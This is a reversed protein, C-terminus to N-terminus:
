EDQSYIVVTYPGITVKGSCPLGDYPIQSADVDPSHHTDFNPDYKYSDSNFRMKWTGERPFGIIYDDDEHLQNKLNVVVVVSDTPGAEQWRHFAILKASEDYHFLHINQGCLGRSIESLNRRLFILDNYMKLIGLEDEIRSWDIPDTVQFWRDELFEQGQFLMPIGPSTLVLAGGLTSRKKSFWSDVNGKWIEEPIRFKGNAVEDHSETFIIRRFADNNYKYKIAECVAGLNRTADDIQIIAERVPNVFCSDWQANFGAGGIGEDKTVWPNNKMDEAISIKGPFFKQIDENIWQMLSWGEPIDDSPDGEKGDINGIYPVSDWRLGDVHYEELWMLANDHIYQRVENRGYDPRTDGWPTRSRKDNFFYIGGKNNESWGDFQWLSLDQPGFHNYVVDIIVALGLEHATKIFLKFADPGGYISEVAFPNAPNYGWSFDGSFEMVPMVEIVNVGLQQLYKLKDMASDFTGPKGKELVNFTGVHMEYIVLENWNGIQFHDDDWDFAQPDYIISNGSSHTVKRAYPDMRPLLDQDTQVLFRYEDGIKARLSKASWIGDGEHIMATKKWQNYTGTVFVKKAFPAWVRFTTGHSSPIAGLYQKTIGTSEVNPM